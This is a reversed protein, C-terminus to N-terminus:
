GSGSSRIEGTGPPERQMTGYMWIVRLDHRACVRMAQRSRLTAVTIPTGTCVPCSAPGLTADVVAQLEDTLAEIKQTIRSWLPDSREMQDRLTLAKAIRQTLEYYTAPLAKFTHGDALVPGDGIRVKM